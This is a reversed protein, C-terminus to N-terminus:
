FFRLKLWPCLYLRMAEALLEWSTTVEHLPASLQKTTITKNPVNDKFDWECLSCYIIIHEMHWVETSRKNHKGIWKFHSHFPISSQETGSQYRPSKDPVPKHRSFCYGSQHVRITKTSLKITIWWYRRTYTKLMIHIESIWFKHQIVTWNVSHM